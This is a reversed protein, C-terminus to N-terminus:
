AASTSQSGSRPPRLAGAMRKVGLWQQEWFREGYRAGALQDRIGTPDFSCTFDATRFIMDWVPFLVAFNCGRASRASGSGSTPM